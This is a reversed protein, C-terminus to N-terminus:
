KFCEKIVLSHAEMICTDCIRVNGPGEVCCLYQGKGRRCFSCYPPGQSKGEMKKLEEIALKLEKEAKDYEFDSMQIIEKKFRVILM